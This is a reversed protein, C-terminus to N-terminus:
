NNKILKYFRIKVFETHGVCNLVLIFDVDKIQTQPFCIDISGQCFKSGKINKKCLEKKTKLNFIQLVYESKIKNNLFIKYNLNNSIISSLLTRNKNKLNRLTDEVGLVFSNMLKMKSKLRSESLQRYNIQMGFEVNNLFYISERMNLTDFVFLTDQYFYLTSNEDIDLDSGIQIITYKLNKQIFRRAKNSAINSSCSIGSFIFAFALIQIIKM